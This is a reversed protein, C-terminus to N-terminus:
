PRAAVRYTLTQATATPNALVLVASQGAALTMPRTAESGFSLLQSFPSAPDGTQKLRVSSGPRNVTIDVTMAEAATVRVYSLSHAAAAVQRPTGAAGTIDTSRRTATLEHAADLPPRAGGLQELYDGGEDYSWDAGAAYNWAGFTSLLLGLPKGTVGTLAAFVDADTGANAAVGEWTALVAARGYAEGLHQWFLWSGYGSSEPDRGFPDEPSRLATTDLYRYHTNGGDFVQDEMWVATGEAFWDPATYDYAYQVAHFFEHAATARLEELRRSGVSAFDNDVVCHAPATRTAPPTAGDWTCYGLTGDGDIDALYVDLGPNPGQQAASGGDPLPRSYGLGVVQRNWSKTFAAVTADVWAATSRHEGTATWHFCLPRGTQGSVTVCRRQVEAAPVDYRVEGPRGAAGYPRASVPWASAVVALLAAAVVLVRALHRQQRPPALLM